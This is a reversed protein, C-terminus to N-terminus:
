HGCIMRNLRMITEEEGNPGNIIELLSRGIAPIEGRIFIEFDEDRGVIGKVKKKINNPFDDFCKYREPLLNSM